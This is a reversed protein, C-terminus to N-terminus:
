EDVGFLGPELLASEKYVKFKSELYEDRRKEWVNMMEIEGLLEYGKIIWYYSVNEFTGTKFTDSLKKIGKEALEKFDNGNKKKLNALAIYVHNNAYDRDISEQWVLEAQDNQGLKLYELGINFSAVTSKPRYQNYRLYYDISEQGHSTFALRFLADAKITSDMGEQILAKAYEIAQPHRNSEIYADVVKLAKKEIGPLKRIIANRHEYLAQDLQHVRIDDSSYVSIPNNLEYVIPEGKHLIKCQLTKGETVRFGIVLEGSILDKNIEITQYIRHASGVCIPIQITQSDSSPTNLPDSFIFDDEGIPFPVQVGGPIISIIEKGQVLIGIKDPVIPIIPLQNNIARQQAFKTAGFAVIRDVDDIEDYTLIESRPYYHKVSEAIFPNLTSGGVLLIYDIREPPILSVQELSNLLSLISIINYEDHRINNTGEPDVFPKYYQKLEDMNMSIDAITYEKGKFTFSEDPMQISIETAPPLKEWQISDLSSGQVNRIHWMIKASLTEKLSRAVKRLRSMVVKERVSYSWEEITISNSKLLKPLLHTTAIYYDIDDGGILDYRSIALNKVEYENGESHMLEVISIDTTGGGMDFILVRSGDPIEVKSAKSLYGIFAANPEDILDGEEIAVGAESVAKLTDTRQSGGFSAPVTVVIKCDDLNPHVKKTFEKLLYDIIFSSVQYPYILDPHNSNHYIVKQGLQSKSSYFVDVGLVSSYKKDEAGKGVYLRNTKRHFYVVSPCLVDTVLRNSTTPQELALYKIASNEEDLKIYSLISNTTGLDIGIAYSYTKINEEDSTTAVDKSIEYKNLAAILDPPNQTPSGYAPNSTKALVFFFIAVDPYIKNIANAIVKATTGSTCIDDILLINDQNEIVGESVQYVGTLEEVRESRLNTLKLPRTKRSKKLLEPSYNCELASAISKGLTDLPSKGSSELENSGLVRIVHDIPLEYNDFFCEKISDAAIKSWFKVHNEDNAKFGDKVSISVKDHYPTYKKFYYGLSLGTVLDSNLEFELLQINGMKKDGRITDLLQQPTEVSTFPINVNTLNANDCGGWTALYIEDVNAAFAAEVDILNDGIYVIRDGSKSINEIARLIPDPHPKHRKTDHYAIINKIPLEHYELLDKAYEKPSSTVVGLKCEKQLINILEPIGPYVRTVNLAKKIKKWNGAKRLDELASTDILTM